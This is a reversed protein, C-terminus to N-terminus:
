VAYQFASVNSQWCLEMYGLRCHKWYDHISTLTPSHLFSLASSNISKFQPAPSFECCDRSSCPSGVTWGLPFWDQIYMPLVSASASVGFCMPWRIRLVSEVLFSGSALFSQLHSSFPIISSSITPHCWQSTLCSNSYVRPTPSPCPLRTHQLGHLRLSNSMVSCSFQVLCGEPPWITSANSSPRERMSTTSHCVIGNESIM